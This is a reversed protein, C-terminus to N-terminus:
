VQTEYTGEFLQYGKTCGRGVPKKTSLTNYLTNYKINNDKCYEYLFGKPIDIFAEGNHIYYKKSAPNNGKSVKGSARLSKSIKDGVSSNGYDYKDRHRGNNTGKLKYGKGYMPNESGKQSVNFCHRESAYAMNMYRENLPAKHLKQLRYEERTAEKRTKFRKLIRTKFLHKNHKQEYKYIDSYRRSCISGNYGNLINDETTSGIYWTPLLEGTYMTLYVVYKM